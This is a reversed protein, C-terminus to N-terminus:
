SCFDENTVLCQLNASMPTGTAIGSIAQLQTSSFTIGLQNSAITSIVTGATASWKVIATIYTSADTKKIISIQYLGAPYGSFNIVNIWTNAVNTYNNYSYSVNGKVQLSATPTTTRIGVNNCYSNSAVILPTSTGVKVHFPGSPTTTGVGFNGQLACVYSSASNESLRWDVGSNQIGRNFQIRNDAEIFSMEGWGNNAANYMRYAKTATVAINGAVNLKTVPSTTGIGVNVGSSTGYVTLGTLLNGSTSKVKFDISGRLSSLANAYTVIKGYNTPTGNYDAPFVISGVGQGSVMNNGDRSLTLSAEANLSNIHLKTSPLTTGIGVNGTGSGYYIDQVNRQWNNVQTNTFSGTVSGFATAEMSISWGSQWLSATTSSFGAQFDTVFVKPYQWVSTLEGIYICCKTGDHGFRVHFNRDDDAQSEIYAFENLWSSSPSYNYGGCHLTFSENQTYEYVKITMRMMTNTWSQPLRIKIAGTTGSNGLSNNSGGNPYSLRIGEINNFFGDSAKVGDGFSAGTGILSGTLTGGALPLFPGLGGGHADVYAKNAADTTASVTDIGQIRGTGGLVIDGGNVTVDGAFTAGGASSTIDGSIYIDRWQNTTSGLDNAGNADTGNSYTGGFVVGDQKFGRGGDSTFFPAKVYGTFTANGSQDLHFKESFGETYIRFGTESGGIYMGGVANTSRFLGLQASSSAKTIRIYNNADKFNMSGGVFAIDSSTGNVDLSGAFTSTGGAVQSFTQFVTGSNNRFYINGGTGSNTPSQLYTGLGTSSYLTNTNNVGKIWGNVRVNGTFTADNGSVTIPANGLTESDTVSSAGQWLAVTQGTGIGSLVSSNDIKQWEGTGIDDNWIVWDGTNWSDPENGTGNPTAAGDASCIYYYGSTQTVGSLDPNGYGSNLSVDPDWTGRYITAGTILSDVYGKTTLTSSADGSSTAASFAQDAFTGNGDSDISLLTANNNIFDFGRAASNLNFTAATNNSEILFTNTGTITVNGTVTVGTSTTKLKEVGLHYLLTEGTTGSAHIAVKLTGGAKTTNISVSKNDATSSIALSNVNSTIYDNAGTTWIQLDNGTGLLIKKNDPLNVNGDFTSLGSSNVDLIPVGSIDSVAFISGSLDDTVSFLQGQSGQIDVVTGGSAGEVILGKRIKFENAM